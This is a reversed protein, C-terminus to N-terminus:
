ESPTLKVEFEPFKNVGGQLGGPGRESVQPVVLNVYTAKDADASYAMTPQAMRRLAEFTQIAERQQVAFGDDTFAIGTPSGKQWPQKEFVVRAMPIEGGQLLYVKEVALKDTNPIANDIRDLTLEDYDKMDAPAQVPRLTNASDSVAFYGQTDLQSADFRKGDETTWGIAKKATPIRHSYGDFVERSFAPVSNAVGSVYSLAGDVAKRLDEIGSGQVVYSRALARVVAGVPVAEVNPEGMYEADTLIAYPNTPRNGNKGIGNEAPLGMVPCVWENYKTRTFEITEPRRSILMTSRAAITEVLGAFVLAPAHTCSKGDTVVVDAAHTAFEYPVAAMTPQTAAAVARTGTELWSARKRARDRLDAYLTFLRGAAWKSAVVAKENANAKDIQSQPVAKDADVLNLSFMAMRALVAFPPYLSAQTYRTRQVEAINLNAIDAMTKAGYPRVVATGVGDLARVTLMGATEMALRLMPHVRLNQRMWDLLESMRKTLDSSEELGILHACEEGYLAHWIALEQSAYYSFLDGYRDGTEALAGAVAEPSDERTGDKAFEKPAAILAGVDMTPADLRLLVGQLWEATSPLMAWSYPEFGSVDTRAVRAMILRSHPSGGAEVRWLGASTSAAVKEGIKHDFRIGFTPQLASTVATLVSQPAIYLPRSLAVYARLSGELAQSADTSFGPSVDGGKSISGLSTILRSVVMNPSLSAFRNTVAPADVRDQEIQSRAQIATALRPAAAGYFSPITVYKFMNEFLPTVDPIVIRAGDAALRATLLNATAVWPDYELEVSDFNDGITPELMVMSSGSRFTWEPLSVAAGGWVALGSTQPGKSRRIAM